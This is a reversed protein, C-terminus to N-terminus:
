DSNVGDPDSLLNALEFVHEDQVGLHSLAEALQLVYAVNHGSPGVSDRVLDAIVSLPTDGAFLPHDPQAVYALASITRARNASIFPLTQVVYGGKERTALEALVEARASDKVRYCVGACSQGPMPVLTVVRGPKEPTGRHDTSIQWFRRAYGEVFGDIREAFPFDPRWIM